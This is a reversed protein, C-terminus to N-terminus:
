SSSNTPTISKIAAELKLSVGWWDFLPEGDIDVGQGEIIFEDALPAAEIWHDITNNLFDTNPYDIPDPYIDREGNNLALVQIGETDEIPIKWHQAYERRAKYVADNLDDINM